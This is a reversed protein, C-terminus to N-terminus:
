KVLCLLFSTNQRAELSHVANKKMYIFIGKKMLVKRGELNFIGNGDVIYVFGERASTHNSIKTGKAMCFLASDIKDNEMIRKSLIGKAPYEILDPINKV